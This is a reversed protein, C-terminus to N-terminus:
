TRSSSTASGPAATCRWRSAPPRSSTASGSTTSRRAASYQGHANGIAPAFCDVGTRPHLRCRCGPEAPGLAEDSGIGDEVGQIGEIEGEVAGGVRAPRPSWRSPRAAPERRRRARPRRLAGLEMRRRSLRQHGVSGSLPRPAADGAGLRVPGLGPLDRLAAERGYMQVTKVSTQLIVPAREEEAAALVAEITLDNVINIAAVGYRDAFARDLTEKMSVIPLPGGRRASRPRFGHSAARLEPFSTAM